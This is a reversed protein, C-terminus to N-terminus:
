RQRPRMGAPMAVPEGEPTSAYRRGSPTTIIVVGPHSRDLSWRPWSSGQAEAQTIGTIIGAYAPEADEDEEEDADEEDWECCEALASILRALEATDPGDKSSFASEPM